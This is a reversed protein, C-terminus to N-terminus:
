RCFKLYYLLIASVTKSDQITNDYIMSLLEKITYTEINIKEDPDLHQTSTQLNTAVYIDINENCFAITTKISKLFELDSSKYGTEEELERAACVCTPEDESDLGGAPIELTYRDLANRWQRVMVIRGDSLVPIVAAAGKHGIFDWHVIKDDPTEVYDTYVNLIAGKYVLERKLRKFEEM